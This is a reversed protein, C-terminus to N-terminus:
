NLMGKWHTSVALTYLDVSNAGAAKLAKVAATATAGSTLVDDILLVNKGRVQLGSGYGRAIFPNERALSIRSKYSKLSQPIHITSSKGFKLAPIMPCNVYCAIVQAMSQCQNFGRVSLRHDSIPVPVVMDWDAIPFARQVMSGMADALITAIRDVGDFKM